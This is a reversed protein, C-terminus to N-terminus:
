LGAFLTRLRALLAKQSAGGCRQQVEVWPVGHWLLYLAANREDTPWDRLDGLQEAQWLVRLLAPRAAGIPQQSACWHAVRAQEAASLRPLPLVRLLSWLLEDSFAVAYERQEPLWRALTQEAMDAWEAVAPQLPYVSLASRAGSAADEQLGIRVLRWHTPASHGEKHREKNHWEKNHWFCLLEETLGYSTAVYDLGATQAHSVVREVLRQGWGQRVKDPHVVLRWIRVGHWLGAAQHGLQGLVCQKAQQGAPRREGRWVAEALPEPLPPEDLTLCLGVLQDGQWLALQQVCPDDLAQRVDDPRTQYHAATLLAAWQARLRADDLLQQVPLPAIHAAPAHTTADATPWQQTLMLAANLQQAVPDNAQWRMPYQLSQEVTGGRQRRLWPLFRLRFGQGSGEYGDTTTAFVRWRAQKALLRLRPLGLMAAEDVLLVANAPISPPLTDWTCLNIRARRADAETFDTIWQDLYSQLLAEHVALPAVLVVEHTLASHLAARALAMSKGHGRGATLLLHHHKSLPLQCIAEVVAQQAALAQPDVVRAASPLQPLWEPPVAASNPSSDPTCWHAGHARMQDLWFPFLQSSPTDPHDTWAYREAWDSEPALLIVLVGGARLTGSVASLHNTHWGARWDLVVADFSQGLVRHVQRASISTFGPLQLGLALGQRGALFQCQQETWAEPGCLLLTHRPPLEGASVASMM